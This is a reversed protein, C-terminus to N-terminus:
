GAALEVVQSSAFFPCGSCFFTLQLTVRGLLLLIAVRQGAAGPWQCFSQHKSICAKFFMCFILSLTKSSRLFFFLLCIVSFAEFM